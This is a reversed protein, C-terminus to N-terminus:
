RFTALFYAWVKSSSSKILLVKIFYRLEPLNPRFRAFITDRGVVQQERGVGCVCSKSINASANVMRLMVGAAEFGSLHSNREEVNGIRCHEDTAQKDGPSDKEV